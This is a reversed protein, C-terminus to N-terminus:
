VRITRSTAQAVALCMSVSSIDPLQGAEEFIMSLVLRALNTCWSSRLAPKHRLHWGCCWGSLDRSKAGLYLSKWLVMSVNEETVRRISKGESMCSLSHFVRTTTSIPLVSTSSLNDLLQVVRGVSPARRYKRLWLWVASVRKRPCVNQVDPLM